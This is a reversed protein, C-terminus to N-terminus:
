KGGYKNLFWNKKEKLSEFNDFNAHLNYYFIWEFIPFFNNLFNWFKFFHTAGM